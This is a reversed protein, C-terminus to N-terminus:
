FGQDLQAPLPEGKDDRAVGRGGVGVVDRGQRADEIQGLELTRIMQDLNGYKEMIADQAALFTDHAHTLATHHRELSDATIRFEADDGSGIQELFGSNEIINTDMNYDSVYGELLPMVEDEFSDGLGDLGSRVEADFIPRSLREALIHSSYNRDMGELVNGRGVEQFGLARNLVNSAIDEFVMQRELLEPVASFAEAYGGETPIPMKDGAMNQYYIPKVDGQRGEYHFYPLSALNMTDLYSTVFKGVESDGDSVGNLFNDRLERAAVERKDKHIVEYSDVVKNLIEPPMASMLRNLSATEIEGRTM